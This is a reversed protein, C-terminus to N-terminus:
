EENQRDIKNMCDTSITRFIHFQMFYARYFFYARVASLHLLIYFRAEAITVSLLLFLRFHSFQRGTNNNYNLLLFFMTRNLFVYKFNVIFSSRGM